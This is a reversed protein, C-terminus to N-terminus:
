SAKRGAAVPWHKVDDLLWEGTGFKITGKENKAYEQTFFLIFHYLLRDEEPAEMYSPCKTIESVCWCKCTLYSAPANTAKDDRTEFEFFTAVINMAKITDNGVIRKDKANLGKWEKLLPSYCKNESGYLMMSSLRTKDGSSLADVVMEMAYKVGEKFEMVDITPEKWGM